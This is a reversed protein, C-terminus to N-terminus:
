GGALVAFGYLIAVVGIVGTTRFFFPNRREGSSVGRAVLYGAAVAGSVLLLGSGIMGLGLIWNFVLGSGLDTLEYRAAVVVTSLLGIWGAWALILSKQQTRSEPISSNTPM